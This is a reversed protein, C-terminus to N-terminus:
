IHRPHRSNAAIGGYSSEIQSQTAVTLLGLRRERM